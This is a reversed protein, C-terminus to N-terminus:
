EVDPTESFEFWECIENLVGEVIADRIGDAQDELPEDDRHKFARRWGYGVGNEVAMRLVEYSKPKM